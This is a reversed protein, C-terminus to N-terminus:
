RKPKTVKWTTTNVLRYAGGGATAVVLSHGKLRLVLNFVVSQTGDSQRWPIGICRATGAVTDLAHIFPYGGPNAYLTYAWRGNASEKRSVPWGQMVWSKQTKDAIRGPLLKQANLDYARVVYHELDNASTHSILYMRSADPSLADFAYAGKLEITQRVDLDRAGLVLFRTTAGYGTTQLVFASGDRFLGGAPGQYTLQPVGFSGEVTLTKLVSGETRDIANIATSTGGGSRVAVFRIQGDKSLLGEGGQAAFPVPYAAYALPVIALVGLVLMLPALRRTM